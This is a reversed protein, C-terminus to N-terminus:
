CKDFDQPIEYSGHKEVRFVWSRSKSTLIKPSKFLDPIKLRFQLLIKPSLGTLIKPKKMLVM